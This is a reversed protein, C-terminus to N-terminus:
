SAAPHTEGTLPKNLALNNFFQTTCSEWSYTLAFDRCSERPIKLARRVATELDEHLSGNIGEQILYKPGTVPYAAVPVGCANAELLVVGFTDTISPFVFVDGQALHMALDEGRKAGWFHVAPYKKQLTELSPGDGIVWKKGPVQLNLFDPLNKEPAVRGMYVLVPEQINRHLDERPRFLHTDVGRSWPVLHSFRREQLEDIITPAAMTREAARHFRRILAYSVGLPLPARLRVYEPFRTHYSTTFTLGLKLCARRTAWGIPGETAIHIADPLFERLRRRMGWPTVRSLRIEPYTPCPIASFLNPQVVLVEHGWQRLM